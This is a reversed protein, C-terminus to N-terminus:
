VSTATPNTASTKLTPTKASKSADDTSKVESTAWGEDGFGYAPGQVCDWIALVNLLGAIWTFVLALEYLKGLRGTLEQLQEPDPPVGYADFLSRPISGIIYGMNTAASEKEVRISCRLGRRFGAAIPRDLELNHALRLEVPKGDLTGKFTGTTETLYEGQEPGLSVTGELKGGASDGDPIALRGSFQSVLPKDLQRLSKNSASMARQNQWLAPFSVAGAGFQAAYHLTIQRTKGKEPQNYVVVGEGLKVGWLYLGLIGFLFICGKLIRGQFLHGLGPILMALVLAVITSREEWPKRRGPTQDTPM